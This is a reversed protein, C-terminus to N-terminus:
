GQPFDFTRQSHVEGHSPSHHRTTPNFLYFVTESIPVSILVVTM